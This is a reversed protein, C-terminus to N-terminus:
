FFFYLRLAAAALHVVDDCFKPTLIIGRVTNRRRRRRRRRRRESASSPAACSGPPTPAL